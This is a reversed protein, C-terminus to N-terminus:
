LERCLYRAEGFKAVWAWAPLQMLIGEDDTISGDSEVYIGIAEADDVKTWGSDPDRDTDDTEEAYLEWCQEETAAIVWDRAGRWVSLYSSQEVLEQRTM